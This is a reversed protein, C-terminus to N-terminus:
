WHKLKLYKEMALMSSIVGVLIGSALCGVFFVLVTTPQTLLSYTPAFEATAAVKQGIFLILLYLLSFAIIGAIVGYLSAEVIYPGRIYSPTAGILKMIKIEESRTFIAIRITNFIILVSITMFILAAVASIKPTIRQLAAARELTKVSDTKGILADEVVSGYKDSEAYEQIEPAKDLDKLTIQFSAPAANPVISAGALLSEDDSNDQLFRRNAEAKDIYVVQLVYENQELDHKLNNRAAETADDLLYINVEYRQSLETVINRTAISIVVSASTILLAVVMVAVAAISLWYNRFLNKTGSIFIRRLTILQHMM